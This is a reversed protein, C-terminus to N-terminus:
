CHNSRCKRGANKTDRSAYTQHSDSPRMPAATAPALTARTSRGRMPRKTARLAASVSLAVSAANIAMATLSNAEAVNMAVSCFLLGHAPLRPATEVRLKPPREHRRADRPLHLAPSDDFVREIRRAITHPPEIFGHVGLARRDDEGTFRHNNALPKRPLLTHRCLGARGEPYLGGIKGDRGVGAILCEHPEPGLERAKTVWNCDHGHERWREEVSVQVVIPRMESLAEHPQRGGFAPTEEVDQPKEHAVASLLGDLAANRDRPLYQSLGTTKRTRTAGRREDHHRLEHRFFRGLPRDSLSHEVTRVDRDHPDIEVPAPTNRTVPMRRGRPAHWRLRWRSGAACTM